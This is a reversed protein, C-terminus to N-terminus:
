NTMGTLDGFKSSVFSLCGSAFRDQLILSQLHVRIDKSYGLTKVVYIYCQLFKIALAM